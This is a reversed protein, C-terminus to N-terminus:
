GLLEGWFNVISRESRRHPSDEWVPKNGVGTHDPSVPILVEGNRVLGYCPIPLAAAIQRHTLGNGYVRNLGLVLESDETKLLRVIVRALFDGKSDRILVLAIDPNALFRLKQIGRWSSFCTGFHKTDAMRLLDKYRCSFEFSVRSLGSVMRMFSDVMLGWGNQDMFPPSNQLLYKALRRGDPLRKEVILHAMEEESVSSYIESLKGVGFSFIAVSIVERDDLGAQYKGTMDLLRAHRKKFVVRKDGRMHSAEKGVLEKVTPV